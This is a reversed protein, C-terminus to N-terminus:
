KGKNQARLARKALYDTNAEPTHAAPARRFFDRSAFRRSTAPLAPQRSTGDDSLYSQRWHKGSQTPATLTSLSAREHSIDYGIMLRRPPPLM